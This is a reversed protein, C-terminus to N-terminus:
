KRFYQGQQRYNYLSEIISLEAHPGIVFLHRPQLFLNNDASIIHIIHIPKDIVTKSKVEIFLGDRFLATNLAAFHNKELAIYKGFHAKFAPKNIAASLSSVFVSEGPITDSLDSHYQGNVLVLHYCDLSKIKAKAIADDNITLIEDEPETIFDDKLFPTLNIYKWDEVKTNPFGLKKFHEFASERLIHLEATESSSSLISRLEFDAIFQDYLSNTIQKIM